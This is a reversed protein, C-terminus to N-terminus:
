LELFKALDANAQDYNSSEYLFTQWGLARAPVLNKERNDIFLIQEPSVGSRDQAIRYIEPMPKKVGLESSDLITDWEIAPFLGRNQMYSRMGLYMDTLLGIHYKSKTYKISPYIGPNIDFHDVIYKTFTFGPPFTIGFQKTFLPLYQVDNEGMCMKEECVKYLTEFAEDQSPHLNLMRKMNSWHGSDSFDKIVVGGVDFYVFSIKSM